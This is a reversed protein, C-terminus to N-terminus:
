QLYFEDMDDEEIARIGGILSVYARDRGPIMNIRSSSDSPTPANAQNTIEARVKEKLQSPCCILYLIDQSDPRDELPFYAFFM